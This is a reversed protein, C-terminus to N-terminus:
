VHQAEKEAVDLKPAGALDLFEVPSAKVGVSPGCPWLGPVPALSWPRHATARTDVTHTLLFSFVVKFVKFSKGNLIYKFRQAPTKLRVPAVVLLSALSYVDVLKGWQKGLGTVPTGDGHLRLPIVRTADRLRM